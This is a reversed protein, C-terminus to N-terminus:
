PRNHLPQPYNKYKGLRCIYVPKELARATVWEHRIYKSKAANESWMLCLANSDALAQAIERSWDTELREKDRWVDLGATAFYNYIKEVIKRNKSSYSIFIKPKSTNNISM